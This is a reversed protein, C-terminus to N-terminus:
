DVTGMVIANSAMGSAGTPTIIQGGVRDMLEGIGIGLYNFRRDISDELGM